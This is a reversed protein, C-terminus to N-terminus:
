LVIDQTFSLTFAYSLCAGIDVMFLHVSNEEVITPQSPALERRNKFTKGEDFVEFRDYILM